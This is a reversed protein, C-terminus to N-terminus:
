GRASTQRPRGRPFRAGSGADAVHGHCRSERPAPLHRRRVRARAPSAAGALKKFVPADLANQTAAFLAPPVEHPFPMTFRVVQVQGQFHVRISAEGNRLAKVRGDPKVALTAEDNSFFQALWTVDRVRGDPYHARVLLQQGEGPRLERDGPLIELQEAEPEDAIPGPARAAIWATLMQAYRSDERFRTGGEHVVGGTPKQVLLSQEPFALDVRRAGVERTLYDYDWEPAYGRLSLRFGNQGALKGHCGGANCGTKTLLPLIDQKFSPASPQGVGTVTVPVRVMTGEFQVGIEASGDALARCHGAADVAVVEPASSSFQAKTTVDSAHGAADRATILVGHQSDAGTLILQTPQVSLPATEGAFAVTALPLLLYRVRRLLLTPLPM